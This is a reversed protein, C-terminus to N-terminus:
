PATNLMTYATTVMESLTTRDITALSTIYVCGKGLTHPGLSGLQAVWETGCLLGYLVLAQKRPSFGVAVTVGTRGTEYRYVHTGFGVISTGWIMPTAGTAKTM